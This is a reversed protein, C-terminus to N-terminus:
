TSFLMRRYMTKLRQLASDPSFENCMRKIYTPLFKMYFVGHFMNYRFLKTFLRNLNERELTLVLSWFSNREKNNLIFKALSFHDKSFDDPNKLLANLTESGQHLHTDVLYDTVDDPVNNAKMFTYIELMFSFYFTKWKEIWEQEGVFFYICPESIVKVTKNVFMKVWVLTHPFTSELTTLPETNECLKAIEKEHLRWESLRFIHSVMSTITGQPRRIHYLSKEWLIEDGKPVTKFNSIHDPKINSSSNFFQRKIEAREYSFGVFLGPVSEGTGSLVSIIKKLCGDVLVDDDGVIWVFKGTAYSTVKMINPTIGINQKNCFYRISLHKFQGIINETNDDSANNLVVLEVQNQQKLNALNREISELLFTLSSARNFTPICISLLYNKM